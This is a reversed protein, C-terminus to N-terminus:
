GAKRLVLHFSWGPMAEALSVVGAPAWDIAERREFWHASPRAWGLVQAAFEEPSWEFYHPTADTNAGRTHRTDPIVSAVHGGPRVVRLWESLAARPDPLHELLHCTFVYDFAGDPFPLALASGVHHPEYEPFLDVRVTDAALTRRGAGPDVGRGECYPAVSRCEELWMRDDSQPDGRFFSLATM